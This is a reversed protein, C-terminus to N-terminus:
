EDFIAETEKLLKKLKERGRMLRTKVTNESLNLIAAVEKVSYDMYYYLYIIERYKMPLNFVHEYIEKDNNKQVVIEETSKSNKFLSTFTNTLQYNRYSWSRLVDYSRNITMRILYTRYNSEGRFQEQREFAKILVDQVIDEALPVSKVYSYATKFLDTMYERAIADFDM